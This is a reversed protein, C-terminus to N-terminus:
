RSSLTSLGSSVSISGYRLKLRMIEAEINTFNVVKLDKEDRNSIMDLLLKSQNQVVNSLHWSLHWHIIRTSDPVLFMKRDFIYIDAKEYEGHEIRNVHVGM